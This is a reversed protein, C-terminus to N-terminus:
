TFRSKAVKEAINTFIQALLWAFHTNGRRRNKHNTWKCHSWINFYSLQGIPQSIQRFIDVASKYSNITNLNARFDGIKKPEM